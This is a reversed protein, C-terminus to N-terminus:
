AGPAGPRQAFAQLREGTVRCLKWEAMVTAGMKEYFRIAGENWDLVSWEFRGYGREVALTALRTLLAQGIGLGRQAPQM